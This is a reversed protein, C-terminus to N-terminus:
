WYTEHVTDDRDRNREPEFAEEGKEEIHIGKYSLYDVISGSKEFMTWLDKDEM